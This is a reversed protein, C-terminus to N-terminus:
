VSSKLLNYFEQYNGDIKYLVNLKRLFRETYNYIGEFTDPTIFKIIKQKLDSETNKLLHNFIIHQYKKNSKAFFLMFNIIVGEPTYFSLYKYKYYADKLSLRRIRLYEDGTVNHSPFFDVFYGKEMFNGPNSDLGMSKGIKYLVKQINKYCLLSQSLIKNKNDSKLIEVLNAGSKKEQLELLLYRNSEEIQLTYLGIPKTLKFNNESLVSFYIKYDTIFNNIENINLTEFTPTDKRGAFLKYVVNDNYAIISSLGYKFTGERLFKLKKQKFLKEIINTLLLKENETNRISKIKTSITKIM